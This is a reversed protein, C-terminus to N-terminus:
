VGVGGEFLDPDAADDVAGEAIGREVDLEAKLDLAPGVLELLARAPVAVPAAPEALPFM